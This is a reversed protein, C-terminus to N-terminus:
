NQLPHFSLSNSHVLVLGDQNWAINSVDGRDPNITIDPAAKASKISENFVAATGDSLGAALQGRGSWAVANPCAAACRLVSVLFGPRRVDFLFVDPADAAIAAILNTNGTDWAVRLLAASDEYLITSRDLDRTDFIRLSGDESVSAFQHSNGYTIDFVAKDHAILQTELKGREVDWISVTTDVACTALKSGNIPNWSLSTMPTNAGAKSSPYLKQVPKEDGVRWVRLSTSTSAFRDEDTASWAVRSPPLRHHYKQGTELIQLYNENSNRIFSGVLTKRRVSLAFMPCEFQVTRPVCPPATEKRTLLDLLPM